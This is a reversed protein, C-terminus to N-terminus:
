SGLRKQVVTNFASVACWQSGAGDLCSPATSQPNKLLDDDGYAITVQVKWLDNGAGGVASVQFNSLRMDPSLLEQGGNLAVGADCTGPTANPLQYLAVSTHTVDLTDSLAKGLVYVFEQSGICYAQRGGSTATLIPSKTSFQIAQTITSVVTRSTNQVNAANVGAYYSNTFHLAGATIVLLIVSFILTAIMLEVVTFGAQSHAMITRKIKM